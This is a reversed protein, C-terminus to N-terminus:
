RASQGMPSGLSSPEAGLNPSKERWFEESKEDSEPPALPPRRVVVPVVVLVLVLLVVDLELLAVVAVVLPVAVEPVPINEAVLVGMAIVLIGGEDGDGPVEGDEPPKKSRRMCNRRPRVADCSDASLGGEDRMLGGEMRLGGEEMMLEVVVVEEVVDEVAELMANPNPLVGAGVPM